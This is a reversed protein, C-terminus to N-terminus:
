RRHGNQGTKHAGAGSQYLKAYDTDGEITFVVGGVDGGCETLETALSSAAGNSITGCGVTGIGPPLFHSRVVLSNWAPNITNAVPVFDPPTLTTVGSGLAVYNQAATALGQAATCAATGSGACVLRIFSWAPYSGDIVNALTVSNLGGNGATPITGQPCTGDPCLGGKWAGGTTAGSGATLTNSVTFSTATEATVPLELGNLSSPTGTLNQLTVLEGVTFTNAAVTFTVATGTASYASITETAGPSVTSAYPGYDNLLPDIGDVTLYRANTGYNAVSSAYANQFNPKSWFSWGLIPGVPLPSEGSGGFIVKEMEGTGIVRDRAGQVGGVLETKINMPNSKVATGTCNKQATQQNAGVDMSTQNEVTDPVNYEMTNYTGSLPERLLVTIGESTLSAQQLDATEAYTGDLVNALEGSTINTIGTDAFGSATGDTQNVHVIIPAAGVRFVSYSAPLTFNTVNFTSSSFFSDVAVTTTSTEYGYGLGLYQTSGTVAVGCGTGGVRLTAFQADEPRIDTGATTMVTATQLLTQINAPLNCTEAPTAEADPGTAIWGNAQCAATYALQDTAAAVGAATGVMTSNNWLLRNGVVSDTQEYSYVTVNTGPSACTTGGTSTDINWAVWSQGKEPVNTTPDTATLVGSPATWLCQYTDGTNPSGTDTQLHFGAAEGGELYLASSGAGNFVWTAQANSSAVVGFQAAALVIMARLLHNM